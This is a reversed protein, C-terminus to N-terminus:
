NVKYETVYVHINTYLPRVEAWGKEDVQTWNLPVEPKQSYFGNTWILWVTDGSRTGTKFSPLLDDDNLLASGKYHPVDKTYVAGDTFMLPKVPTKNYYKFNFFVASIAAYIKNGPEVNANLFNAAASMGPKSKVDLQIWFHTYAALNLAMYIFFLLYSLWKIKIEKLWVAIIISFFVGAFLFYRDLFVSSSSGKLRAILAFLLAGFFPAAVAFVALWKHFSDTKKLFRYILYFCFLTIILLWFRTNPNLTDRQFGLLMDWFTSPISYRDMPQIWYGAQVQRYQYMFTKLWPLFSGIIFIFSLFLPVFKTYRASKDAKNNQHHFYLYVVGYFGLAAASFFLYYHTYIMVIMSFTFGVWNWWMIKRTKNANPLNPMNLSESEGLKKQLDLFKVLFYGALLVFFAGFTYMRAETVYLLQFPNIAILLAAWLAAKENKFAEKAFLWGAWITATGFFVSSTRLSFFSDGFIYSWLRLFIYYGPPHVDLGLRYFMEGWPYRIMFASFAEDHWLSIDLNHYFRLITGFILILFLPTYKKLKM